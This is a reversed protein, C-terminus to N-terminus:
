KGEGSFGSGMNEIETVKKTESNFTVKFINMGKNWDQGSQRSKHYVVVLGELESNQLGKSYIELLELKSTIGISDQYTKRNEEFYEKRLEESVYDSVEQKRNKFNEPTFNLNVEFLKTVISIFETNSNINTGANAYKQQFLKMSKDVDAAQESLRENEALLKEEKVMLKKESENLTSVTKRLSLTEQQVVVNWFSVGLILLVLTLDILIHKKMTEERKM